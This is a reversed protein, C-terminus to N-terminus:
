KDFKVGGECYRKWSLRIINPADEELFRFFHWAFFGGFFVNRNNCDVVCGGIGSILVRFGFFWWSPRKGTDCTQIYSVGASVLGGLTGILFYELTFKCGLEFFNM